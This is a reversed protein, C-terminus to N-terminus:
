NLSLRFKDKLRTLLSNTKDIADDGKEPVAM